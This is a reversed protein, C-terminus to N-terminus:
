SSLCQISRESRRAGAVTGYARRHYVLPPGACPTRASLVRGFFVIHDAVEVADIVECDLQALADAVAPSESRGDAADIFPELFKMAGPASGHRAVALQSEALVGVGFRGTEAIARAATTNSRLSVLVTPPDAAVSVFSTVTVGWPRDGVWCTVLAVGSALTSMADVFDRTADPVLQLDPPM